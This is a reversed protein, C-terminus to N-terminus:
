NADTFHYSVFRHKGHPSREQSESTTGVAWWTDRSPHQVPKVFNVDGLHFKNDELVQEEEM